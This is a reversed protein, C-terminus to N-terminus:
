TTSELGVVAVACAHSSDAGQPERASPRIPVGPTSYENCNLALAPPLIAMRTRDCATDVIRSANIPQAKSGVLESGGVHYGIGPTNTTGPSCARAMQPGMRCCHAIAPRRPTRAASFALACCRAQM